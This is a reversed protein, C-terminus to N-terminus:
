RRGRRLLHRARVREEREREDLVRGIRGLEARLHPAVRQELTRVQRSAAALATGLRAILLERSAAALLREMLGEFDDAALTASAGAGPTTARAALTRRVPPLAVLRPAAVGWVQTPELEVELRRPPWGLPELGASGQEGLAALLGRYAAAAQAAITARAEAAPRVQALLERVLAERKKRLLDRGKAVRELRRRGRLLELRTSALRRDNV